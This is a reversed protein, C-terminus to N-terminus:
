NDFRRKPLFISYWLMKLLCWTISKRSFARIQQERNRRESEFYAEITMDPITAVGLKAEIEQRWPLFIELLREPSAMAIREVLSHRHSLFAANIRDMNQHRPSNLVAILYGRELVSSMGCLLPFSPVYGVDAFCLYEPHAFARVIAQSQPEIAYETLRVFGLNELQETYYELQARDIDPHSEIQTPVCQTPPMGQLIKRKVEIEIFIFGSIFLVVLPPISFHIITGSFGILDLIVSAIIGCGLAIM